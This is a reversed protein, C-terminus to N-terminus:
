EVADPLYRLRLDQGLQRVDALHLTRRQVMTDIGLGALLPRAADGLVVPALYVLLEDVLGAQLLAGSLTAGAEAHVENIGREALLALVAGLDFRGDHLPMGVFEANHLPTASAANGHLYLTPADGQRIKECGVTRLRADLVVRLPPVFPTDDGLRVTMAPDDALVTGAGTLIAGARARWRQVDARADAGTIWKSEGSALATRGDLSAGLKVRLWPRGREVRSLFGRNLERAQAQLVGSIVEIGAERLLAFGGGNVQPFPDAMAAVVRAVGAEILALACPPTRGYHACPELTVYATAGRAREGAARLAFVEAHPGGARQHFGEGVCMGDRVIVCGVMPNPRTTYAGREALRLAQAMWRHDDATVNM